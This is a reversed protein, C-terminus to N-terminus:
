QSIRAIYVAFPDLTIQDVPGSRVSASTTLLATAKAASRL